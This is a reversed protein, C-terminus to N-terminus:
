VGYSINFKCGFFQAEEMRRAKLGLSYSSRSQYNHWTFILHCIKTYQKKELMVFIKKDRMKKLGANFCISFLSVKKNGTIDLDSIANSCLKTQKDQLYIAKAEDKNKICVKGAPTGHGIRRTGDRDKYACLATGEFYKIFEYSAEPLTEDAMAKEVVSLIVYFIAVGIWFLFLRYLHNMNSILQNTREYTYSLM